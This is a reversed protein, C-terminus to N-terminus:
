VCGYHVSQDTLPATNARESTPAAGAPASTARPFDHDFRHAHTLPRANEKCVLQQLVGVEKESLM